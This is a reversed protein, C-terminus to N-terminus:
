GHRRPGLAIQHLLDLGVSLVRWRAPLHGLQFGSQCLELDLHAIRDAWHLGQLLIEVLQGALLFAKQDIVQGLLANGQCPVLSHSLKDAMTKASTSFLDRPM